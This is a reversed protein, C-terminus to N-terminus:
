LRGRSLDASFPCRGRNKDEGYWLFDAVVCNSPSWIDKCNKSKCSANKKLSKLIFYKYRKEPLM